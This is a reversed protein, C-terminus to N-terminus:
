TNKKDKTVTRSTPYLLPQNVNKLVIPIGVASNKINIASFKADKNFDYKFQIVHPKSTKVKIWHMKLWNILLRIVTVKRNTISNELLKTSFFDQYTLRM